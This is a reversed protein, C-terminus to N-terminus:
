ITLNIYHRPRRSRGIIYFAYGMISKKIGNECNTHKYQTSFGIRTISFHNKCHSEGKKIRIENMNTRM